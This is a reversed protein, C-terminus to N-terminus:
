APLQDLKTRAARNWESGGDASACHLRVVLCVQVAWRERTVAGVGRDCPVRGTARASGLDVETDGCVPARELGRGADTGGEVSHTGERRGKQGLSVVSVQVARLDSRARDLRAHVRVLVQRERAGGDEFVARVHRAIRVIGCLLLEDAVVGRVNDLELGRVDDVLAEGAGHEPINTPGERGSRHISDPASGAHACSEVSLFPASESTPVLWVTNPASSWVFFWMLKGFELHSLMLLLIPPEVGGVLVVVVPPEVGVPPVPAQAPAGAHAAVVTKTPPFVAM